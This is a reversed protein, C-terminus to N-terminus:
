FNNKNREDEMEKLTKLFEELIRNEEGKKYIHGNKFLYAISNSFAIGLDAEKAEGPGNVECGMIAVKVPLKRKKIEPIMKKLKKEFRVSARGCLPCSIIEPYKRRIDLSGLLDWCAKVEDEPPATLSIRITDGIGKLLLNGLAVSSKILGEPIPGAETVGIHLPYESRESFMTYAKITTRIDSSKLSIKMNFFDNDEFIKIFELASFVIAEASREGYTKLINKDLSGSNVGIRIAAGYEKAGKIVNILNKRSGFNGPNIRIGKAGAKLAEIALKHHFHIDAIVPIPSNKVIEKFYEIQEFDPLAIRIIENGYKVTEIIQDINGKVDDLPLSNMTQVIIPNDGGIKVNGVSIERTLKRM